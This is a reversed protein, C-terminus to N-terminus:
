AREVGTTVQGTMLCMASEDWINARM